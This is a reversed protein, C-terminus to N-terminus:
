AEGLGPLPAGGDAWTVVRVAKGVETRPVTGDPLVCVRARVGLQEGLARELERALRGDHDRSAAAATLYEIAIIIEKVAARADVVILYHPAARGDALLVREVEAPYINVGRIVLMDDTRGMVKSMKALTRGCECRGRRLAAIDGTRFRLLPMAQKTLTTFVLEGPTGEPVPEGTARDVAEVLFHDDNVHLGDQAVLCEAAVGPGIVESLGYIDLARLGLLEQIRARMPESWPEAGFLGAKLNLDGPKAGSDALAEGLRIAYSPTCTLIDAKLDKLLMLQRPTMGGSVPVVTAGLRLAGQHIGLGGTFLGYGYANHVTSEATAGAAALARACMQSWLGIDARTYSVLTPRGGTGSSGHVVVVESRPVALMGFPYADWLDRKGTFPLRPLDDITIDAEATVGAERLRAAQAGGAALLRGILRRLRDGQIAAREGEPMTEGRKDFIAAEGHDMAGEPDDLM